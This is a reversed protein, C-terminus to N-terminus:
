NFLSGQRMVPPMGWGFRNLDIQEQDDFIVGEAELLVRQRLHGDGARISIRGQANVVRQWPVDAPCAAMAAGVWRAGAARYEEPDVGEPCGVLEAIRGYTTVQGRPVARVAEWVAANFRRPEPPETRM